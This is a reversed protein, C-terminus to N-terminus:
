ALRFTKRHHITPGLKRLALYHQKTPYGVNREWGYEPYEHHLQQMLQDRTVKALISAAAISQSKQDGKVIASQPLQQEPLRYPGDVLLAHPPM